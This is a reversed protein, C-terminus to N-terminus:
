IPWILLPGVSLEIPIYKHKLHSLLIQYKCWDKYTLPTKNYVLSASVPCFSGLYPWACKLDYFLNHDHKEQKYRTINQEKGKNVNLHQNQKVAIVLTKNGWPKGRYCRLGSMRPGM